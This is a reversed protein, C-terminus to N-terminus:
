IGQIYLARCVSLVMYQIFSQKKLTQLKYNPFKGEILKFRNIISSLIIYVIKNLKIKMFKNVM